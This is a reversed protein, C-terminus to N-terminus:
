LFVVLWAQWLHGGNWPCHITLENYFWKIIYPVFLYYRPHFLIRANLLNHVHTLWDTIQYYNHNCSNNLITTNLYYNLYYNRHVKINWELNKMLYERFIIRNRLLFSEVKYYIKERLLLRNFFLLCFNFILRKFFYKGRATYM